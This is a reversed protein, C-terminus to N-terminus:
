ARCHPTPHSATHHLHAPIGDSTGLPIPHNARVFIPIEFLIIYLRLSVSKIYLLLCQLLFSHTYRLLLGPSLPFILRQLASSTMQHPRPDGSSEDALLKPNRTALAKTEDLNIWNKKQSLSFLELSCYELLIICLRCVIFGSYQMNRSYEGM